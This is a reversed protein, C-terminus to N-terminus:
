NGISNLYDKLDDGSDLELKKRLRTRAKSVSSPTINIVNSIEGITLGQAVLACLRKESTTLVINRSNLNENFNPNIKTFATLYEYWSDEIKASTKIRNQLAILNTSSLDKNLEDLENLFNSADQNRKSLLMTNHLIEKNKTANELEIIKVNKM